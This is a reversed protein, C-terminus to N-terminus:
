AFPDLLLWTGSPLPPSGTLILLLRTGVLSTNVSTSAIISSRTTASTSAEHEFVSVVVVAGGVVAPGAVVWPTVVM